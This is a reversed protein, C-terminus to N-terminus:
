TKINNLMISQILLISNVKNVLGFVNHILYMVSLLIMFLIMRTDIDILPHPHPHPPHVDLKEKQTMKELIKPRKLIFRPELHEVKKEEEEEVEEVIVKKEVRTNEDYWTKRKDNVYIGYKYPDNSDYEDYM